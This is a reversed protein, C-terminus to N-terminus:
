QGSVVEHGPSETAAQLAAAQPALGGSLVADVAKGDGARSGLTKRFPMPQAVLVLQNALATAPGEPWADLAVENPPLAGLAHTWPGLFTPESLWEVLDVVIAQKEAEPTVVAWSWTTTLAIGSGDRTPLAAASASELSSAMWAELPAVASTARREEFSAWAQAANQYQRTTLPLAGASYASGYFKLVEELVAPDIAPNGDSQTLLGDLALYQALTFGALPDAAPFLFPGPSGLMDSWSAPPEGLAAPDYVLVDTQSPSPVGYNTGDVRASEVAIM